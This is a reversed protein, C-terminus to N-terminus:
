FWELACTTEFKMIYWPAEISFVNKWRGKDVTTLISGKFIHCSTVFKSYM